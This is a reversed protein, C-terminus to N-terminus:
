GIKDLCCGPLEVDWANGNPHPCVALLNIGAVTHRADLVWQRNILVREKKHGRDRLGKRRGREHAQDCLPLDLQVRRDAPINGLKPQLVLLGRVRDRDQVQEVVGGPQVPSDIGVGPFPVVGQLASHRLHSLHFQDRQGAGSGGVTLRPVVQEPPDDLFDCALRELLGHSREDELRQPKRVTEERAIVDHDPAENDSVVAPWSPVRDMARGHRCERPSFGPPPM